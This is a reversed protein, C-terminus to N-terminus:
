QRRHVSGLGIRTPASPTIAAPLARRSTGATAAVTDDDDAVDLQPQGAKDIDRDIHHAAAV